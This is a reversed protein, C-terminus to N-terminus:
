SDFARGIMELSTRYTYDKVVEQQAAVLDMWDTEGIALTWAVLDDIDTDVVAADGFLDHFRPVNTVGLTGYSINKYVRCPLYENEVQWAGAVAPAFRSERVVEVNYADSVGVHHVFTLGREGVTKRLQAIENVNGQGNGDWVSGVFAVSRAEPNYVPPYFEDPLLNTGWPQYLVRAHSDWRRAPGWSEGRDACDNTWVQLYVCREPDLGQRVPHDDLINHLLYDAGDVPAGLHHAAVDVAFVLDGPDIFGRSAPKDAVWYCKKRNRELAHAYHRWIHQFSDGTNGQLGWLVVKNHRPLIPLTTRPTM